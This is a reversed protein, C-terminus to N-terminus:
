LAQPLHYLTLAPALNTSRNMHLMKKMKTTKNKNVTAVTTLGVENIM